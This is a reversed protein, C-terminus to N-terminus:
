YNNKKKIILSSICSLGLLCALVALVINAYLYFGTYNNAKANYFFLAGAFECMLIFFTIMLYSQSKALSVFYSDKHPKVFHKVKSLKKLFSFRFLLTAVVYVLAGCIIAIIGKDPLLAYLFIGVVLGIIFRSNYILFEKIDGSAIIYGEKMFPGSYIARNKEDHFIFFGNLQGPSLKPNRQM